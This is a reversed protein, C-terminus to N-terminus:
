LSSGCVSAAKKCKSETRQSSVCGLLNTGAVAAVAIVIIERKM